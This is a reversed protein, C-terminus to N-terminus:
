AKAEEAWAAKFDWRPQSDWSSVKFKPLRTFRAYFVDTLYSGSQKTQFFFPKKRGVNTVMTKFNTKVEDPVRSFDVDFSHTSPRVEAYKQVGTTELVRSHDVLEEDYGEYDPDGAFTFIGAEIATDFYAGLFLRGFDRTEGAASKTYKFRWFRYTHTVGFVHLATAAQYSSFVQDVSPAGWTDTANAQIRWAEASFDAATLTHDLLIFSNIGPPTAGLDLTFWESAVTTGTRYVKVRHAHQLNAVPLDPKQTSAALTGLDAKNDYFFRM